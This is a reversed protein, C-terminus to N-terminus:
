FIFRHYNNHFLPLVIYIYELSVEKEESLVAKFEDKVKGVVIRLKILYQPEGEGETTDNALVLVEELDRAEMNPFEKKVEKSVAM